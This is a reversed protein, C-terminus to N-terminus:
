GIVKFLRPDFPHEVAGVIRTGTGPLLVPNLLTNWTEPAVASPVDLAPHRAQALWEDGKKRTKALQGPEMWNAPLDKLDVRTRSLTDPLEVELLQYSSPLDGISDIEFHALTELIAAAPSPACYIVPRGRTHWRQGARLGGIGELDAYNSIRWLISM